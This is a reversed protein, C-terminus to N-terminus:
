PLPSLSSYLLLHRANLSPCLGLMEQPLSSSVSAQSLLFFPHLCPPVRHGGSPGWILNGPHPKSLYGCAHKSNELAFFLQCIILSKMEFMHNQLDSALSRSTMRVLSPELLSSFTALFLTSECALQRWIDSSNGYPLSSARRVLLTNVSKQSLILSM